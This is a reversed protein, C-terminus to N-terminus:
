SLLKDAIAQWDRVRTVNPPLTKVQNWPYDGFLYAEIGCDAVRTVHHIHDDILLDAGMDQCVRAKPRENDSSYHTFELSLFIGPFLRDLLAQTITTASEARGTVVHLDHYRSLQQLIALTTDSTPLPRFAESEMFDNIRNVSTITDPANWLSPRDTYFDELPVQAGYTKNYYELVAPATSILVDDCDVAIIRKQIKKMGNMM